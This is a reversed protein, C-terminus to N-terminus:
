KLKKELVDIKAQANTNGLSLAKRYYELATKLAAKKKRPAFKTRKAAVEMAEGRAFYSDAETMKSNAIVEQIRAEINTLEQQKAKIKDNKDLLEAEQLDMTKILNANETDLKSVLETLRQVEEDRSALDAQLRRITKLYSKNNGKSQRLIKEMQNLKQQTEKVYESINRMRATYDDKKAGENLDMRLLHRNNDISDMLAGVEQFAQVFKEKNTLEAELSDVQTRLKEKESTCALLLGATFFVFFSKM